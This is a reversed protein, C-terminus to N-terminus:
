VAAGPDSYRGSVCCTHTHAAIVSAIADEFSVEERWGLKRLATSDISYRYDQFARDPVHEVWDEVREGPRMQRLVEAVVQLVDREMSTGINFIKLSGDGSSGNAAAVIADLARAIDSSHIFTRKAAGAGHVRVREGRAIRHVCQPVLKEIHQFPSIANNCRVIAIPVRFSMHYAHCLMEAGAKTASYPNSPAFMSSEVCPSSADDVSGYVEDTSMHLFLRLDPSGRFCELLTHTGMVNSETFRFSNGFSQDVHTEAALHVVLSPRHTRVIATVADADCVNGPVLVYNAAPQINAANAAYTLADLNVFTTAPYERVLYNVVSSGIAGCGGTILVAAHGHMKGDSAM